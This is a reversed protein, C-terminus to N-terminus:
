QAEPHLPFEVLLVDRQESTLEAIAVSESMGLRGLHRRTAVKRAGPLSELVYLLRTAGDGTVEQSALVEGLSREGSALEHRLEVRRQRSAAVWDFM